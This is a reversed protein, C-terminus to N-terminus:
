PRVRGGGAGRLQTDMRLGERSVSDHHLLRDVRQALEWGGRPSMEPYVTDRRSGPLILIYRVDLGVKWRVAFTYAVSDRPYARTHHPTLITVRRQSVLFLISDGRDGPQFALQVTDGPQVAERAALAQALSDPVNAGTFVRAPASLVYWFVVAAGAVFAIGALCGAAGVGVLSKVALSLWRRGPHVRDRAATPLADVLARSVEGATQYRQAPDKALMRELVAALQPTVDPRTRRIDPPTATLQQAIIKASSDGDFPPAGTLMQYLVIALSYIDSRGDVVDGAAQEPSMYQPTGIIMGETTLQAATAAQAAKAIGFDTVLVHGRKDLLINDPKVDRHVISESHAYSLADAVARAVRAADGVSMRRTTALLQRLSPGDICRMVIYLLDGPQGVEYIPVINPHELRAITQAERVFRDALMPSPAGAVDLVKVAVDRNLAQDRARFVVAFGGQGLLPGVSFQQGLAQQLRQQLAATDM